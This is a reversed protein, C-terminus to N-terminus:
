LASGVQDDLHGHPLVQRDPLDERPETATAAVELEDTRRVLDRVSDDLPELPPAASPNLM